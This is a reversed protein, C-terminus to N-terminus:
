AQHRLARNVICLEAPLSKPRSLAPKGPRRPRLARRTEQRKRANMRLIQARASSSGSSKAATSSKRSPSSPSSVANAAPPLSRDRLDHVPSARAGQLRARPRILRRRRRDPDTRLPGTAPRPVSGVLCAGQRDRRSRLARHRRRRRRPQARRRNRRDARCHVVLRLVHLEGPAAANTGVRNSAALPLYNAAAHGQMVRRWHDRSDVPPAPPPESGITSPYVLLDAGKLAM